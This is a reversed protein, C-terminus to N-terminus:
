TGNFGTMRWSVRERNGGNGPDAYFGEATHCVLHNFFARPPTPWDARVEGVEIRALLADQHEASLDAFEQAFTARAEADLAALGQRYAPLLHALQGTLLRALYEGSGADWGGPFADAPIVRDMAAHLTREEATSFPTTM